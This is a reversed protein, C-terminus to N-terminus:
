SEGEAVTKAGETKTRGRAEQAWLYGSGPRKTKLSRTVRGYAALNESVSERMKLPQCQWWSISVEAKICGGGLLLIRSM